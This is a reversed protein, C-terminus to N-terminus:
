LAARDGFAPRDARAVGNGASGRRAALRSAALALVFVLAATGALVLPDAADVGYLLDTLRRSLVLTGVVGLAAGIGALLVAARVGLAGDAVAGYMAVLALLLTLAACFVALEVLFRGTRTQRDLREELSAADYTPSDPTVARVERELQAMLGAPDVGAEPVVMFNITTPLRIPSILIPLYLDPAPREDAFLGEQKINDAVGVVTLWPHAPNARTSFKLRQGLPSKGPWQQEAMAKSVIVNYPTAPEGADALTFARGQLIPVQLVKFYDPTISHTMIPYIGGPLDSDHDEITIYGGAWPDTPVTPGAIAWREVGPLKEVREMYRRVTAIVEHDTKYRNGQLDVRVTHVNEPRFRLEQGAVQGYGRAMLAATAALTVALGVQAVVSLSQWGRSRALLGILLGGIVAAVLVAAIVAPGASLQLVSPFTLGSVSPLLSVVWFGLALGLVAGLLALVLGPAFTRGAPPGAVGVGERLRNRLLAAVSLLTFLLLLVAVVTFPRLGSRLDGIWIEDLPDARVGMGKNSEPFKTELGETIRNLEAQAQERTVGPKLRAVVALWRMRRSNVFVPGPPMSSPIWADAKDSLGHFGEAAVGVVKYQQGNLDLARGLVQPDGNFRRQWLDHSLITVPHQFPTGDEEPTFTRGLAIPVGLVSFYNYSVLEGSLREAQNGVVLNFAMEGPSLAAMQEFSRVEKRWDLFDIYSIGWEQPEGEKEEFTGQLLLLRSPDQYPLEDLFLAKDLIATAGFAGFGLALLLVALAAFAPNKRLIEM